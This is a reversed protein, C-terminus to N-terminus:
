LFEPIVKQRKYCKIICLSKKQRKLMETLYPNNKKDKNIESVYFDSQRYTKVKHPGADCKHCNRL